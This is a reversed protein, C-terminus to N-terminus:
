DELLEERAEKKALNKKVESASKVDLQGEELAKAPINFHWQDTAGTVRKSSAKNGVGKLNRTVPKIVTVGVEVEKMSADTRDEPISQPTLKSDRIEKIDKVGHKRLQKTAGSSHMELGKAYPGTKKETKAREKAARKKTMRMGIKSDEENQEVIRKVIETKETYIDRVERNQEWPSLLNHQGFTATLVDAEFEDAYKRNFEKSKSEADEGEFVALPAITFELDSKECYIDDTAQRLEEYHETIYRDLRYFTDSPPLLSLAHERETEM